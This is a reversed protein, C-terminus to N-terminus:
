QAHRTAFHQRLHLRNIPSPLQKPLRAITERILAIQRLYVRCDACSALHLGARIRAVIPLREDSYDMTHAVIQRCTLGGAIWQAPHDKM